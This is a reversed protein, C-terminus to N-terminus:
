RRSLHSLILRTASPLSREIMDTGIAQGKTEAYHRDIFISQCGASAGALVDSIRDGVMYSKGLNVNHDAAAQLLMGPKPKRCDCGSASNHPCMRVDDITLKTRLRAHMEDVIEPSILGNAIDPQNTVVIVLFGAKKLSAISGGAGPLLRLDELRRVAYPKGDRVVSRVVVGDRDLFVARRWPSKVMKDIQAAPRPPVRPLAM